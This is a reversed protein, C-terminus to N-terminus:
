FTHDNWYILSSHGDCHVRNHPAAIIKNRHLMPMIFAVRSRCLAFPSPRVAGLMAIATIPIFRITM